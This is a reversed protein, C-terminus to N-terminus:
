NSEKIATIRSPQPFVTKCYLFFALARNHLMFANRVLKNKRKKHYWTLFYNPLVAAKTFNNSKLKQLNKQFKCLPLYFLSQSASVTILSTCGNKIHQQLIYLVTNLSPVMSRLVYVNACIPARICQCFFFIFNEEYIPYEYPIPPLTM